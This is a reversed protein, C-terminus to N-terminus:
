RLGLRLPEYLPWHMDASLFFFNIGADFAASVADPSRVMGLCFPSVSLGEDGLVLRDTLRPLMQRSPRATRKVQENGPEAQPRVTKSARGRTRSSNADAM